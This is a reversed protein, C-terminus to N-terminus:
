VEVRFGRDADVDCEGAGLSGAVFLFFGDSGGDVGMSTVVVVAGAASHSCEPGWLLCLLSALEVGVFKSQEDKSEWCDCDEDEDDYELDM